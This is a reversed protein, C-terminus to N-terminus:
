VEQWSVCAPSRSVPELRITRKGGSLISMDGSSCEPAGADSQLPSVQVSHLEIGDHMASELQQAAYLKLVDVLELCRCPHFVAALRIYHLDLVATVHRASPLSHPHAQGLGNGMKHSLRCRLSGTRIRADWVAMWGSTQWGREVVSGIRSHGLFYLCCGLECGTEIFYDIIAIQM